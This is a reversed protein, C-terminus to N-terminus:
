IGKQVIPTTTLGQKLVPLTTYSQMLLSPNKIKHQLISAAQWGLDFVDIDIITPKPEILQSYPYSDFTLLAIEQPINVRLTELAKTVGIAITNNECVIADVTPNSTLINLTCQYSDSISSDTYGILAEKTWYGYKYMSGVFGNLRQSSINDTKQSGIFAVHKYGCEIMHKAAYEGALGNNTDVWSKRLEM